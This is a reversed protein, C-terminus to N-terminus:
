IIHNQLFGDKFFIVCTESCSIWRRIMNTYQMRRCFNSFCLFLLKETRKRVENIANSETQRTPSHFFISAFIVLPLHKLNIKLMYVPIFDQTAYLPPCDEKKELKRSTLRPSFKDGTNNANNKFSKSVKRDSLLQLPTLKLNLYSSM